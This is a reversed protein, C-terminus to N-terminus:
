VYRELMDIFKEEDAAVRLIFDENAIEIGFDIEVRSALAIFKMSDMVKFFYSLISDAEDVDNNVKYDASQSKEEEFMSTVIATLKSRIESREMLGTEKIM